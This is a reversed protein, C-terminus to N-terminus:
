IKTYDEILNKVNISKKGGSSKNELQVFLGNATPQPDEIIKSLIGVEIAFLGFIVFGIVVGTNYNSTKKNSIDLSM